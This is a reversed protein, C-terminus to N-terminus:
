EIERFIQGSQENKRLDRQSLAKLADLNRRDDGPEDVPTELIFPKMRLKPHNLIRRFGERGIHGEGINAHRDVRSGRPTKSDNAHFMAVNELGLVKEAHRVTARLGEITAVDFGAALLHCTDLCYGVPAECLEGTLERIRQLEEFRSGLAAGSGATNELLVRVRLAPCGEVADRLALAVAAIGEEVPRGACSGPHVVLFEAGIAEARQIESRFADISKPRIIPDVSALNILYNAHIALPFLDYQERVARMGRIQEADAPKSRWM